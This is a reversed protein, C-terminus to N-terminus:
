SILCPGGLNDLTPDQAWVPSWAQASGGVGLEDGGCLRSSRPRRGATMREAAEWQRCLAGHLLLLTWQSSAGTRGAEPRAMGCGASPVAGWGCPLGRPLRAEPLADPSNRSSALGPLGLGQTFRPGPTSVNLGACQRSPSAVSFVQGAKPAILMRWHCSVWLLYVSARPGARRPLLLM